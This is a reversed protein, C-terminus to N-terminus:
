ISLRKTQSFVLILALVRCQMPLGIIKKENKRQFLWTYLFLQQAVLLCFAIPVDFQLWKGETHTITHEILDNIM